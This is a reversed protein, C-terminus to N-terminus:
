KEKKCHWKLQLGESLVIPQWLESTAMKVIRKQEVKSLECYGSSVYCESHTDIASKKYSQCAGWDNKPPEIEELKERLCLSVDDLFFQTERGSNLYFDDENYLLCYKYGFDHLYNAKGCPYHSNM